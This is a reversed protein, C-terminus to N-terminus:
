STTRTDTAGNVIVSKKRERAQKKASDQEKKAFQMEKHLLKILERKMWANHSTTISPNNPDVIEQLIAQARCEMDLTTATDVNMLQRKLKPVFFVSM